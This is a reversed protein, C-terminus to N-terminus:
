FLSELIQNLKRAVPGVQGSGLPTGEIKTIPLVGLTTGVMMVEKANLLDNKKIPRTGIENINLDSKIKKVEEFVRMLTTGRLTYDFEPALLENGATLIMINETPGEAVCGDVTLNVAFDAHRDVAEKKTMVNPLYNCSKIQAWESSKAATLAFVMSAGREYLEKAMPKFPTAVIYLQAGVTSYPNPSFDGPGRSVFVRLMGETLQAAEILHTVIVKLRQPSEPVTLGIREASAFLRAVHADWAFLNQGRYRIAEFVGDGRHVLHDDVPVLMFAPDTVIGGYWSSYMAKYVSDKTRTKLQALIETESLM